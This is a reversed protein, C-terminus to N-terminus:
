YVAVVKSTKADIVVLEGSLNSFRYEPHDPISLWVQGADVSQGIRIQLGDYPFPDGRTAGSM